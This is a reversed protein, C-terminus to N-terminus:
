EPRYALLEFIKQRAAAHFEGLDRFRDGLFSYSYRPPGALKELEPFLSGLDAGTPQLARAADPGAGAAQGGLLGGGAALRRFALFDRRLMEPDDRMHSGGGAREARM